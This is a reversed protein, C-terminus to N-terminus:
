IKVFRFVERSGKKDIGIVFYIGSPLHAVNFKGDSLGREITFRKGLGDLVEVQQTKIPLFIESSAPNPFIPQTAKWNPDTLNVTGLALVSSWDSVLQANKARIRIFIIGSFGDQFDFAETGAPVEYTTANSFDVDTATEIEFHTETSSIHNWALEILDGNKEGLTFRPTHLIETDTIEIIQNAAINEIISEAGGPWIIKIEDITTASGVGFHAEAPEQALYSSGATILRMMSQTGAKVKVTAGIAFHNAGEMRPRITIFNGCTSCENKLLRISTNENVHTTSTQLMDLLGDHNYDLAILSKADLDDNFGINDSIDLFSNGSQNLWFKSLDGNNDVGNTAALDQFGDNDVDMFTTGWGWGSRGVGMLNSVNAFAVNGALDIGKYLVNYNGTPINFLSEYDINTMFVDFREDNNFDGIAIGMENNDAILTYDIANEFFTFDNNLFLRNKYSDVNVYLDLDGDTDVDWMLPQFFNEFTGVIGIETGLEEFGGARNNKFVFIEGNGWHTLVIDLYGDLNLDGAALGGKIMDLHDNSFIDLGAQETVESFQGDTAQKFLQLNKGSCSDVENCSNMVLLDVLQDGDYDLWLSAVSGGTLELGVANSVEMFGQGANNLYIFDSEGFATSVHLDSWGDGNIDFCSAGTGFRQESTYQNIGASTTVDTMTQAMGAHFCTCCSILLLLKNKLALINM